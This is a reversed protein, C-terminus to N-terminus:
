LIGQFDNTQQCRKVKRSTHGDQPLISICFCLGLSLFSPGDIEFSKSPFYAFSSDM